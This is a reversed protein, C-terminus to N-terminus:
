KRGWIDAGIAWFAAGVFLGINQGFKLWAPELKFENVTPPLILSTAIPWLNDAFWGFGTVCFLGWQYKGMGIDQVADNLIQAKAIYRGDLADETYIVDFHHPSDETTPSSAVKKDDSDM